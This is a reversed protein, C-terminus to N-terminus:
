HCETGDIRHAHVHSLEEETSFHAEIIEVDFNLAKRTMQHNLNVVVAEAFMEVPLQTTASPIVEGYANESTLTFSKKDGITLDKINEEFSPLMM